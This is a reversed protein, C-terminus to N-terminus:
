INSQYIFSDRENQPENGNKDVRWTLIKHSDPISIKRPHKQFYEAQKISGPKIVILDDVRLVRSEKWHRLKQNLMEDADKEAPSKSGEEKKGSKDKKDSRPKSKEKNSRSKSSGLNVSEERGHFRCIAYPGDVRLVEATYTLAIM